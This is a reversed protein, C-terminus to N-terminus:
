LFIEPEKRRACHTYLWDAVKKVREVEMVRAGTPCNKVCAQCIICREPETIVSNEVVVAATPCVSACTGCLTCLAERTTPAEMPRKMREKYPFNGPVELAAMRDMGRNNLLKGFVRQGFQRAKNLDAEDPRGVAIPTGNTSYSHEGIFAGAAFPRFGQEIALNKLELLADEYERNGYVVVVVTPAERAKLRRLRRVAEIPLRGAHVPAGLITLEDAIEGLLQTAAQPPTLDLHEIRSISMGQAIGQLIKKTTQTPSFYVLKVTNYNM